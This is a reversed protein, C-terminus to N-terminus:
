DTILTPLDGLCSLLEDSESWGCQGNPRRECRADKYCTYEPLFECTTVVEEEACIQGSCGTIMCEPLESRVSESTPQPSELHNLINRPWLLVVAIIGIAIVIASFSIKKIM